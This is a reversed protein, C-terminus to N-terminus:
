DCGSSSVPNLRGAVGDRSVGALSRTREPPINHPRHVSASVRSPEELVRERGGWNSRHGAETSARGARTSAGVGKPM